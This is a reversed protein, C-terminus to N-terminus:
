GKFIKVRVCLSHISMMFAMVFGPFGDLFGLLLIYNKVFKATPYLFLEFMNSGLGRNKRYESEIETYYNIKSLFDAITQHPYHILNHKLRDIKGDLEWVEHVPRKWAGRNKRGLRLLEVGAAEGFRLKKGLFIDQRKIKYGAVDKKRKIANQIEAQLKKSVREDADVFLVWESKVKKLAFNRQAAFNEGSSRSYVYAGLSKAITPTGDTSNDDIVIVEDCWDISKLCSKIDKKENKTIVVSAITPKSRQIQKM